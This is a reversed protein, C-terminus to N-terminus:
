VEGTIVSKILRKISGGRSINDEISIVVDQPGMQQKQDPSIVYVNTPPSQVVNVQPAQAKGELQKLSGTTTANLRDLFPKGLAATASPKLIYENPMLMAPISDRGISTGATAGGTAFNSVIGGNARMLVSNTGIPVGAGQDILSGFTTGAVSSAVSGLPVGAVNSSTGGFLSGIWSGFTGVLGLGNGQGGNASPNGLLMNTFAMATRDSVVKLMSQLISLGMSKFAAEVDDINKITQTAWDSFGASLGAELAERGASFSDKFVNTKYQMAALDEKDNEISALL